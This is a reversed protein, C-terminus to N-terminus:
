RIFKLLESSKRSRSIEDRDSCAFCIFLLLQVDNCVQLKLHDVCMDALEQKILSKKTTTIFKAMKKEPSQKDKLSSYFLPKEKAVGRRPNIIASEQKIRLEKRNM